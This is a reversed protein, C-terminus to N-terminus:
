KFKELYNQLNEYSIALRLFDNLAAKLHSKTDAELRAKVWSDQLKIERKRKFPEKIKLSKLFFEPNKLKILVELSFENKNKKM